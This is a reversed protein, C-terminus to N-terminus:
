NGLAKQFEREKRLKTAVAKVGMVQGGWSKFNDAYFLKANSVIQNLLNEDEKRVGTLAVAAATKQHVLHGLRARGKVIVYPVGMKRCLAPLWVVLEVPDVDHAIVVLRAEKSEVLSTVHNLGYKVFLPKGSSDTSQGKVENEAAATLRQKKAVKDEPRYNSLLRFLNAAANKEITKTFQNIAPPVKLRQNLIAKQRQVRVYVPWKVMRSLDRKHQVDQGIGFNRPTDNFLYSHTSKWDKKATKTAKTSKKPPAVTRKKGM